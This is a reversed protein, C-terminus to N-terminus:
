DLHEAGGARRLYLYVNDQLGPWSFLAVTGQLLWDARILSHFQADAVFRQDGILIVRNGAFGSLARYACDNRFPPWCLMIARCNPHERVAAAAERQILPVFTVPPPAADTATVRLGTAGLLRAWLGAGACLELLDSGRAFAAIAEIATQNPVAWAFRAIFSRRRGTQAYARESDELFNPDDLESGAPLPASAEIHRWLEDLDVSEVRPPM